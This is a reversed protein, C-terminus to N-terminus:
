PRGMVVILTRLDGGLGEIRGQLMGTVFPLSAGLVILGLSITVPFSILFVNMQPVVRMLIGVAMHALLMVMTVPLSVMVALLFIEGGLRILQTILSGTLFFGLPPIRGFSEALARLVIQHANVAFFIVLALLGQLQGVLSVQQSYVPDFLNGIGLGMQLGAMESGFEVAAFIARIGFGIVLGILAEGLLGVTLTAMDSPPAPVTVVPFLVASVSVATLVRLMVPVSNSGIIPIAAIFASVRALVLLFATESITLHHIWEM